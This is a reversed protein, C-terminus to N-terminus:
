AGIGARMFEYDKMFDEKDEKRELGENWGLELLKNNAKEITKFALWRFFGLEDLVVSMFTMSIFIVLIKLPNISDARTMGSFVEGLSLYGICILLIAGLVSVLWFTEIKINKIKIEPKWIISTILAVVTIVSILVLGLMKDGLM